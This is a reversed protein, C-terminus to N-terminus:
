ASPLHVIFTSGKGLASKVEIHGGHADTINKAIALGLGYGGAGQKHRSTESQYFREFIKPLEKASIGPGNDSIKISVDHRRRQSTINVTEGAPSYKVANELLIYFLEGLSGPEGMVGTEGAQNNIKVKKQAATKDLRAAAAVL